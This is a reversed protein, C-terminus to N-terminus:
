TMFIHFTPSQSKLLYNFITVPHICGSKLNVWWLLLKNQWIVRWRWWKWNMKRERERKTTKKDESKTLNKGESDKLHLVAVDKFSYNTILTVMYKWKECRFSYKWMKNSFVHRWVEKRWECKLMCGNGLRRILLCSWKEKKQCKSSQGLHTQYKREETKETEKERWDRPHIQYYHHHSSRIKKDEEKPCKGGITDYPGPYECSPEVCEGQQVCRRAKISLRHLGKKIALCKTFEHEEFCTCACRLFPTEEVKQPHFPHPCRVHTCESKKWVSTEENEKKLTEKNEKNLSENEKKLSEKKLGEREDELLNLRDMGEDRDPPQTTSTRASKTYFGSTASSIDAPMFYTLSLDSETLNSHTDFAKVPEKTYTQAQEFTRPHPNVERCECETDNTFVLPEVSNYRTENHYLVYFFVTVAEQVKATCQMADNECCGAQDDCKYLLTCRSSM